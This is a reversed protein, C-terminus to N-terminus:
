GCPESGGAGPRWKSISRLTGSFLALHAFFDGVEVGTAAALALASMVGPEQRGKEVTNINRLSYGTRKAMATQSMGAAQRAQVLLPGFFSKMDEATEPKRYAVDVSGPLIPPANDSEAKAEACLLRFFEGPDAGIAELMRLALQVGPQRSGGEIRQINRTHYDLRKALMWQSIERQQRERRFAAGFPCVSGEM